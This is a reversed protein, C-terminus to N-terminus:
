GILKQFLHLSWVAGAQSSDLLLCLYPGSGLRERKRTAAVFTTTTLFDRPPLVTGTRTRGRAGNILILSIKCFRLVRMTESWLPNKQAQQQRMCDVLRWYVTKTDTNNATNAIGILLQAIVLQALGEVASLTLESTFLPRYRWHRQGCSTSRNTM